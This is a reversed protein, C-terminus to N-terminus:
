KIDSRFRLIRNINKTPFTNSKHKRKHETKIAKKQTHQPTNDRAVREM